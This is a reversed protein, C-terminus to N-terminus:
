ESRQMKNPMFISTKDLSWVKKVLKQGVFTSSLIKAENTCLEYAEIHVSQMSCNTDKSVSSVLTKINSLHNDLGIVRSLCHDWFIKEPKFLSPTEGKFDLMHEDNQKAVTVVYNLFATKKNMSKADNLKLLSTISFATAADM